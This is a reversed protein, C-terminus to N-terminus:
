GADADLTMFGMVVLYILMKARCNAENPSSTRYVCESILEPDLTYYKVFMLTNELNKLSGCVIKYYTGFETNALLNQDPFLSKIESATYAPYHFFEGQDAPDRGQILIGRELEKLTNTNAAMKHIKYLEHEKNIVLWNFIAEKKFGLEYLKKAYRLSCCIDILEM